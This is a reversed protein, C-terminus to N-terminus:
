ETVRLTAHDYYFLAEVKKDHAVYLAVCPQGAARTESLKQYRGLAARLTSEPVFTYPIEYGVGVGNVTYLLQDPLHLESGLLSLV